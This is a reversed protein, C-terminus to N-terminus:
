FNVPLRHEAALARAQSVPVFSDDSIRTVVLPGRAVFSIPQWGASQTPNPPVRVLHGSWHCVYTGPAHIADFSVQEGFRGCEGPHVRTGTVM